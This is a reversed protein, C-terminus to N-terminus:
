NPSIELHIPLIEGIKNATLYSNKIFNFGGWGSKITESFGVLNNEALNLRVKKSSDLSVNLAQECLNGM